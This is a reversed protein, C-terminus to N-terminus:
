SQFEETREIPAEEEIIEANVEEIIEEEIEDSADVFMKNLQTARDAFKIDIKALEENKALEFKEVIEAKANDIEAQLNDLRSKVFNFEEEFNEKAVRIKAM